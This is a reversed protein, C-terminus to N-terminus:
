SWLLQWCRQFQTGNSVNYYLSYLCRIALQEYPCYGHLILTNQIRRPIKVQKQTDRILLSRSVHSMLCIAINTQYTDTATQTPLTHAGAPRVFICFVSRGLAFTVGGTHHCCFQLLQWILLCGALIGWWALDTEKCLLYTLVPTGTCPLLKNWAETHASPQASIHQLCSIEHFNM